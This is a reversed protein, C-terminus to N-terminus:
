PPRPFDTLRHELSALDPRRRPSFLLILPAAPSLGSSSHVDRAAYAPPGEEERRSKGGHKQASTQSM